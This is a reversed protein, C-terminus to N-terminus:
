AGLVAPVLYDEVLNFQCLMRNDRFTEPAARGDGTIVIVLDLAPIVHVFQGGFGVAVAGAYGSQGRLWWLWGYGLDTCEDPQRALAVQPSTSRAVWDEPLIRSGQWVGGRLYLYGFKAMDRARLELEAGGVTIGQPDAPWRGPAIGLPGFLYLEAYARLSMGTLRALAASLLHTDATSYNFRTGPEHALPRDLIHRVWDPSATLQLVSPGYEYWELGSRMTLLHAITIARKRPDDKANFAEPLIASLPEDLDPLDGTDLAIGVLASTVSKTVSMVNHRVDAGSGAGYWEFILAGGRVVLLSNLHPALQRMADRAAILALHDVGHAAPDARTWDPLPWRASDATMATQGKAHPTVEVIGCIAPRYRRTKCRPAAYAVTSIRTM